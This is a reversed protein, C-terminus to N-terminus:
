NTAAHGAELTALAAEADLRSQAAGLWGSMAAAAETPLQGAEQLAGALDDHRLRDEMRSLVADPTMGDQPTLSRSAVQAELFARSRAFVGDGASAMISAQIAAHAADPFNDRLAPLPTVGGEAVALLPEPISVSSQGALRETAADFPLGAALAARVQALDAEVTAAGVKPEAQAEAQAAQSRATENQRSADAAVSDIRSARAAGEDSLSGM